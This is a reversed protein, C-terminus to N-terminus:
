QAIARVEVLRLLGLKIKHASLESQSLTLADDVDAAAPTGEHAEGRFAVSGM